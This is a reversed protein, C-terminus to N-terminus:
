FKLYFDKTQLKYSDTYGGNEDYITLCDIKQAAEKKCFELLVRNADKRVNPKVETKRILFLENESALKECNNAADIPLVVALEGKSSLLDTSHSFLESFPLSDNHRAMTRNENAAKFAQSFFPPNSVILDFKSSCTKSYEQLSIHRVDVRNGWPSIVVNQKAEFAANEEIEIATVMANSRQAMMLAILGTGTGVDLIRTCNDIAAWAGLLTGDTGVKMAAKDQYITFQKFQFYNNRGM